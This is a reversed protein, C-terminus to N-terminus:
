KLVASELLHALLDSMKAKALAVCTDAAGYYMRVEDSARDWIWGCPFVVDGVDGFREYPEQPAFIWHDSRRKVVSPEELDLLALGLRYLHGAATQRVGHYLVLWGEPTELPPTNLGIKNADWWAGQRSEMLIRHDGWHKLDPSYSIWIHAEPGRFATVPRHILLWRGGFRRPFLAADKDDPPTMPGKREFTKFDETLALCVLPGGRSFAVYTMAWKGIEDLRVVRPDEVGWLEEPHNDPDPQFAPEPDIRWGSVGDRSRALNIHSIGRMDEVRVLLLTEGDVEAAAANFVTNVQYPWDSATLIPNETYRQFLPSTSKSFTM